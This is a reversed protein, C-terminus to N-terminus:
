STTLSSKATTKLVDLGPLGQGQLYKLSAGGGTLIHQLGLGKIASATDGGGVISLVDSQALSQAIDLTGKHFPPQEFFGMPGNWFLTRSKLIAEQYKKITQPGIDYAMHKAPIYRVESVSAKPSLAVIHDSPLLYKKGRVKLNHLLDKVNQLQDKQIPTDGVDIGEAKLFTAAMLGGVMLIDVQGILHQLMGLKDSVKAGGLLLALPREPQFLQDLLRLEKEILFGIGKQQLMEPLAVLSAHSRHCTAFADNIYIDTYQAFHAALIHSNEAEKPEFRLNELMLIQTPKLASILRMPADGMVDDMLLVEINLKEALSNAVPMLSHSKRDQPMVPRGLHSAVLVKAGQELLYSITPLTAQMRTDDLIHGEKIPVNLDLRLFVRQGELSFDKLSKLGKM